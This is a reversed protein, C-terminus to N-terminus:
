RSRLYGKKNRIIKQMKRTDAKTKPGYNVKDKVNRAESIPLVRFNKRREAYEGGISLLRRADIHCSLSERSADLVPAKGTKRPGEL